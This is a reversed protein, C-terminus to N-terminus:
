SPTHFAVSHALARRVGLQRCQSSARPLRRYQLVSIAETGSDCAQLARTSDIADGGRRADGRRPTARHRALCPRLRAPSAFSCGGAGDSPSHSCPPTQSAVGGSSQCPSSCLRANQRVVWLCLDSAAQTQM